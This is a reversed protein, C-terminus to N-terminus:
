GRAGRRFHLCKSNRLWKLIEFPSSMDKSQKGRPILSILRTVPCRSLLCLWLSLLTHFPSIWPSLFFWRAWPVIYDPSLVTRDNVHKCAKMWLKETAWHRLLCFLSSSAHTRSNHSSPLIPCLVKYFIGSFPPHYPAGQLCLGVVKQRLWIEWFALKLTFHIGLTHEIWFYLEERCIELYFTARLHNVINIGYSQLDRPVGSILIKFLTYLAEPPFNNRLM